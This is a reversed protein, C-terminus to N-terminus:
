SPVSIDGVSGQRALSYIPAYWILSSAQREQANRTARGPDRCPCRFNMTWETRVSTEHHPSSRVKCVGTKFAGHECMEIRDAIVPGLGRKTETHPFYPLLVLMSFERERMCILGCSVTATASACEKEPLYRLRRYYLVTGINSFRNWGPVLYRKRRSLLGPVRDYFVSIRYAFGRDINGCAGMHMRMVDFRKQAFRCGIRIIGFLGSVYRWVVKDAIIIFNRRDLCIFSRVTLDAYSVFYPNDRRYAQTFLVASASACQASASNEPQALAGPLVVPMARCTAGRTDVANAGPRMGVSARLHSVVVFRRSRNERIQHFMRIRRRNENDPQTALVVGDLFEFFQESVIVRLAYSKEYSLFDASSIM